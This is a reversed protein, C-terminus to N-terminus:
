GTIITPTQPTIIKSFMQTYNDTIEKKPETVFMVDEADVNVTNDELQAYPLWPRFALSSPDQPNAIIVVPNKISCIDGDSNVSVMEGIFEEGNKMKVYGVIM